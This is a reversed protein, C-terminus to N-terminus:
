SEEVTAKQRLENVYAALAEGRRVHRLFSRIKERVDDFDAQEGEEQARKCLLHMGLASEVPESIVDVDLAFVARDLEPVLTGRRVWGLSGGTKRGSPCESHAAAEGAFDAGGQLRQRIATLRRRTQEGAAQGSPLKLLIHQVLARDPKRYESAHERYHLRIEEETPDDAGETVRAVLLDVKRGSVVSDRFVGPALGQRQLLRLFTERGGAKEQMAAIERDVDEESVGLDLRSAERVLLASGIAQERARTQLADMQRRIEDSSLHQSYFRILRALEFRVTEEPIPQGDIRIAM